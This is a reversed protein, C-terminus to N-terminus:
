LYILQDIKNQSGTAPFHFPLVAAVQECRHAESKSLGAAKLAERKGGLKDRAHSMNEAPRGAPAVELAKSLEGIRRKARLRIKAAQAQSVKRLNASPELDTREGQTLNQLTPPPALHRRAPWLPM